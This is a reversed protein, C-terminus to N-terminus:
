EGGSRELLYAVSVQEGNAGFVKRDLEAFGNHSTKNQGKQLVTQAFRTGCPLRHSNKTERWSLNAFLVDLRGFPRNLTENLTHSFPLVV